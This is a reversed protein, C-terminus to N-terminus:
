KGCRRPDPTLRSRESPSLESESALHKICSRDGCGCIRRLACVDQQGGDSDLQFVLIKSLAGPWRPPPPTSQALFYVRGHVTMALVSVHTDAVWRSWEDGHKRKVAEINGRGNTGEFDPPRAQILARFEQFNTPITEEQKLVWVQDTEVGGLSASWRLLRAPRDSGALRTILSSVLVWHRSPPEEAIQEPQWTLLNARHKLTAQLLDKNPLRNLATKIHECVGQDKSAWITYSGPRREDDVHPTAAAIGSTPFALALLLYM